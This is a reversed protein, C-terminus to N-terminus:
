YVVTETELVTTPQIPHAGLHTYTVPKSVQKVVPAPAAVVPAPAAVVPTNYVVPAPAPAAVYPAAVYPAAVYPAVVPAPAAKEEVEVPEAAKVAVPAAPAVYPNYAYPYGYGGYYNYPYNYFGNYYNYYPNYGYGGYYNGYYYAAEAEAEAEAEPVAERKALGAEKLTRVACGDSTVCDRPTFPRAAVAVGAPAIAPVTYPAVVPAVPAVPATPAVPVKHYYSKHYPYSYYGSNYVVPSLGTFAAPATVYPFATNGYVYPAIVQPDAEAERKHVRDVHTYSHGPLGYGYASRAYFGNYFGYHSGYGYGLHYPHGYYAGYLLAPDAEPEAQVIAALALALVGVLFKMTIVQVSQLRIGM